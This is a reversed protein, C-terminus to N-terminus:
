CHLKKIHCLFCQCSFCFYLDVVIDIKFAQAYCFLCDVSHFPFKCLLHFYKFEHMKLLSLDISNDGLFM